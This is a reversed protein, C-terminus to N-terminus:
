NFNIIICKTTCTLPYFQELTMHLILMMVVAAVICIFINYLDCSKAELRTPHIYKQCHECTQLYM